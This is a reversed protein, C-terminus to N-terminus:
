ALLTSTFPPPPVVVVFGSRRRRRRRRRGGRARARARAGKRFWVFLQPLLAPHLPLWGLSPSTAPSALLSPASLLM